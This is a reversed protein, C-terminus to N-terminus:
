TNGVKLVSKPRNKENKQTEIVVKIFDVIKAVKRSYRFIIEKFRSM